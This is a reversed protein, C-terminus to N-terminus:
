FFGAYGRPRGTVSPMSVTQSIRSRSTRNLWFAPTSNPCLSTSVILIHLPMISFVLNQRMILDTGYLFASDSLAHSAMTPRSLIQIRQQLIQESLQRRLEKRRATRRIHLHQSRFIILRVSFPRFWATESKKRM